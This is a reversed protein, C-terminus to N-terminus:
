NQSMLTESKENRVSKMCLKKQYQKTHLSYEDDGSVEFYSQVTKVCRKGTYRANFATAHSPFHTREFSVDYIVIYYRTKNSTARTIKMCQKAAASKISNEFQVWRICPVSYNENTRWQSDFWVFITANHITASTATVNRCFPILFDWNFLRLKDILILSQPLHANTQEIVTELSLHVVPNAVCNKVKHPTVQTSMDQMTGAWTGRHMTKVYHRWSSPPCDVLCTLSKKKSNRSGSSNTSITEFADVEHIYSIHWHVFPYITNIPRKHASFLNHWM